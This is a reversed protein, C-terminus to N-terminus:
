HEESLIPSWTECGYLFVALNITKYTQPLFIFQLYRFIFKASIARLKCLYILRLILSVENHTLKYTFCFKNVQLWDLALDSIFGWVQLDLIHYPAAYHNIFTLTVLDFSSPEQVHLKSPLHLFYTLNKQTHTSFTISFHGSQLGLLLHLSLIKRYPYNKKIKRIVNLGTTHIM